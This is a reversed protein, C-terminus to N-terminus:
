RQIIGKTRPTSARKSNLRKRLPLNNNSTALHGAPLSFTLKNPPHPAKRRQQLHQTLHRQTYPLAMSVLHSSPLDPIPVKSPNKLLVSKESRLQDISSKQNPQNQNSDAPYICVETERVLLAHSARIDISM